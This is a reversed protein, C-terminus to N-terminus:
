DSWEKESLFRSKHISYSQMNLNGDFKEGDLQMLLCLIIQCIIKEYRPLQLFLCSIEKTIVNYTRISFHTMPM